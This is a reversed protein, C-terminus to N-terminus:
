TTLLRGVACVAGVVLFPAYMLKFQMKWPFGYMMTSYDSMKKFTSGFGKVFCVLLQYGFALAIALGFGVGLDWAKFGGKIAPFLFIGVILGLPVLLQGVAVHIACEKRIEKWYADTYREVNRVPFWRRLMQIVFAGPGFDPIRPTM